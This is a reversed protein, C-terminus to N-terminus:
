YLDRAIYVSKSILLATFYKMSFSKGGSVVGLKFTPNHGFSFANLKNGSKCMLLGYGRM